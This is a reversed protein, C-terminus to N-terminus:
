LEWNRCVYDQLRVDQGHNPSTMKDCFHRILKGKNYRICYKCDKCRAPRTIEITTM